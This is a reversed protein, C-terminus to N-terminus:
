HKGMKSSNGGMISYFTNGTVDSHLLILLIYSVIEVIYNHLVQQTVCSM